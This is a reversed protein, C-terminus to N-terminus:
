EKGESPSWNKLQILIAEMKMIPKQKICKHKLCFLELILYKQGDFETIRLWLGNEMPLKPLVNVEITETTYKKAM